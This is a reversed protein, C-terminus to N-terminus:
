LLTEGSRPLYGLVPLEVDIHGLSGTTMRAIGSKARFAAAAARLDPARREVTVNESTWRTVGGSMDARVALLEVAEAAAWFPDYSPSWEPDYPMRGQPDLTIARQVSSDIDDASLQAAVTEGLLARVKEATEAIDMAM